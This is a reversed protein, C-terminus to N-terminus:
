APLRLLSPAEGLGSRNAFGFYRGFMLNLM